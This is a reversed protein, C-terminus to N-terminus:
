GEEVHIKFILKLAIFVGNLIQNFQIVDVQPSSLNSYQKVLQQGKRGLRCFTVYFSPTKQNNIMKNGNQLFLPLMTGSINVCKSESHLENGRSNTGSYTPLIIGCEM